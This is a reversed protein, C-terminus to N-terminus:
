HGEAFGESEPHSCGYIKNNRATLVAGFGAIARGVKYMVESVNQGRSRVDNIVNHDFSFRELRVDKRFFGPTSSYFMPTDSAQKADMGNDLLNNIYQLIAETSSPGIVSLAAVPKLQRNRRKKKYNKRTNQDSPLKNKKGLLKQILNRFWSKVAYQSSSDEVATKNMNEKGNSNLENIDFLGGITEPEEHDQARPFEKGNENGLEEKESEIENEWENEWENEGWKDYEWENENKDEELENEWHNEWEREWENKFENKPENGNVEEETGTQEQNETRHTGISANGEIKTEHRPTPNPNATSRYMRHDEEENHQGRIYNESKWHQKKTNKTFFDANKTHKETSKKTPELDKHKFVEWRKERDRLGGKSPLSENSSSPKKDANKKFVIVPQLGSPVRSGPQGHSVMDRLVAGSHPLAVGQVFLGTGWPRANATHAMSCINGEKDMAVIGSSGRRNERHRDVDPFSTLLETILENIMDVGEQSSLHNWILKASSNSMRGKRSADIHFYEHLIGWAEPNAHSYASIFQSYRSTSILTLLKTANTLYTGNTQTMGALNMIKLMEILEVGGWDAGTTIVHYGNYMTSAPEIWQAECDAMDNSNMYGGHAKVTGLMKKTWKGRYFYNKGHKQINRIFKALQPQRFLETPEYPKNTEPNTFIKLGLFAFFSSLHQVDGFILAIISILTNTPYVLQVAQFHLENQFVFCGTGNRLLSTVYFYDTTLRHQALTIM